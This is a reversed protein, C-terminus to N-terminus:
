RGGVLEDVLVGAVAGFFVIAVVGAAGIPWRWVLGAVGAASAATPCAVLWWRRM